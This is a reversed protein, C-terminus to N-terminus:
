STEHSSRTTGGRCAADTSEDKRNKRKSNERLMSLCTGVNRILAQAVNV